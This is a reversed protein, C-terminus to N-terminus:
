WSRCAPANRLEGIAGHAFDHFRAARRCQAASPEAGSVELRDCGASQVRAGRRSGLANGSALVYHPRGAGARAVSADTARRLWSGRARISLPCARSRHSCLRWELAFVLATSLVLDMACAIWSVGAALGTEVAGTDTSLPLLYGGSETDKKKKKTRVRRRALANTAARHCQPPHRHVHNM